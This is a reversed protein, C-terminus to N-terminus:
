SDQRIMMHFPLKVSVNVLALDPLLLADEDSERHPYQFLSPSLSGSAMLATRRTFATPPPPATQRDTEQRRQGDSPNLQRDPPASKGHSLPVLQRMCHRSFLTAELSM